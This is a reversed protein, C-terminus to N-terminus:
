GDVLWYKFFFINIVVLGRCSKEQYVTYAIYLQGYCHSDVMFCTNEITLLMEQKMIRLENAATTAMFSEM